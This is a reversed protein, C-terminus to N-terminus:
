ALQTSELLYWRTSYIIELQILDKYAKSPLDATYNERCKCRITLAAALCRACSDARGIQEPIRM